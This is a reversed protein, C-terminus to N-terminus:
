GVPRDAAIEHEAYESYERRAFLGAGLNYVLSIAGRRSFVITRPSVIL